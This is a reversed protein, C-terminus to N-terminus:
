MIQGQNEHNVDALTGFSVDINWTPMLPVFESVYWQDFDLWMAMGLQFTINTLHCSNWQFVQATNRFFSTPLCINPLCSATEVLSDMPRVLASVSHKHPVCPVRWSHLWSPWPSLAMSFCSKYTCCVHVETGASHGPGSVGSRGSLPISNAQWGVCQCNM